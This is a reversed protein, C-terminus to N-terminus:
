YLVYNVPLADLIYFYLSKRFHRNELKIKFMNCFSQHNRNTCCYEKVHNVFGSFKLFMSRM